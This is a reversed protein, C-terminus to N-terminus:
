PLSFTKMGQSAVPQVGVRSGNGRPSQYQPVAKEIGYRHEFAGAHLSTHTYGLPIRCAHPFVVHSSSRSNSGLSPSVDTFDM